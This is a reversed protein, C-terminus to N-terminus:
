ETRLKLEVSTGGSLFPNVVFLRGAVAPAQTALAEKVVSARRVALARLDEDRVGLHAM